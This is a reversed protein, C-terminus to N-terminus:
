SRPRKLKPEKVRLVECSIGSDTLYGIWTRQKDSLQDRPGKVESLKATRTSERWLLLDPMGATWNSYDQCLLNCVAAIGPGGICSIISQLTSLHHKDWTVGRVNVGYHSNWSQELLANANGSKVDELIKDISAKRSEYFGPYGLDLPATQFRTRFVDPVPEFLAPWLLLTFLTCWIGGESHIGRYSGGEETAYYQLALEEVTCVSSDYGIFKSKGGSTNDLSNNLIYVTKPEKPMTHVWPPKKWRRPPKGLKLIRRQLTLREDLRISTDALATEAIELADMVFRKGLHELDISLRIWWYGRRETCYVGGLLQQLRDVASRYQKRKELFSIGVTAMVSYVWKSNFQLFFPLPASPYDVVKNEQNDLMKWAPELWKDIEADNKQQVANLLKHAHVLSLEYKQFMEQDGFVSTKRTILYSPYSLYGSEIAHWMGLSHGENLFFLRQIRQFSRAHVASIEFITGGCADLILEFMSTYKSSFIPAQDEMRKMVYRILNERKMSRMKAPSPCQPGGLARASYDSILQKLDKVRFIDSLMMQKRESSYNKRPDVRNFLGSCILRNVCSKINTMENLQIKNIAYFYKSRQCLKVFVIQCDLTQSRFLNLFNHEEDGLAQSEISEVTTFMEYLRNLAGASSAPVNNLHEYAIQRVGEVISEQDMLEERFDLKFRVPLQEQGISDKMIYGDVAVKNERLLPGIYAAVVRPLHGLSDSNRKVVVANEDYPNDPEWFLVCKEDKQVSKGSGYRRGVICSDFEGEGLPARADNDDDDDDDDCLEIVEITESGHTAPDSTNRHMSQRRQLCTEVHDSMETESQGIEFACWCVPCRSVDKESKTVENTKNGDCYSEITAALRETNPGVIRSLTGIGRIQSAFAPLSM